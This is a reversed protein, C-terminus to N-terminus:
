IIPGLEAGCFPCFKIDVSDSWDTMIGVGNEGLTGFNMDLQNSELDFRLDTFIKTGNPLVLTGSAICDTDQCKPCAM